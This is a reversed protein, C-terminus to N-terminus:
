KQTSFATALITLLYVLQPQIRLPIELPVFSIHFNLSYCGQCHGKLNRKIFVVSSFHETTICINTVFPQV